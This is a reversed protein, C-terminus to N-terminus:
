DEEDGVFNEEYYGITEIRTPRIGDKRWSEVIMNEVNKYFIVSQGAPIAIRDKFNPSICDTYLLKNDSDYLAIAIRIEDSFLIEDIDNYITADIRIADFGTEDFPSYKIEQFEGDCALYKTYAVNCTGSGIITLLYDDIYREREDDEVTLINFMYGVAGPNLVWPCCDTISDVDITVGENDFLEILGDNVVIPKNGTNKLEAYFFSVHSSYLPLVYLKEQTVTIKGASFAPTSFVVLLVIILVVLRKM